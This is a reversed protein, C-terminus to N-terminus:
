IWQALGVGLGYILLVVYYVYYLGIFTKKLLCSVGHTFLVLDMVPEWCWQCYLTLHLAQKRIQLGEFYM